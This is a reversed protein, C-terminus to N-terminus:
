EDAEVIIDDARIRRKYRDRRIIVAMAEWDVYATTRDNYHITGGIYGDSVIDISFPGLISGFGSRFVGDIDALEKSKITITTM